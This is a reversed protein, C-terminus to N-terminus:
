TLDRVWSIEGLRGRKFIKNQWCGVGGGRGMRVGGRGEEGRGGGGGGGELGWRGGSAGGLDLYYKQGGRARFIAKQPCYRGM